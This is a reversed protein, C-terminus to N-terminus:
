ASQRTATFAIRTGDPSWVPELDKRAGSDDTINTQATGDSKVFTFTPCAMPRISTSSGPERARNCQHRRVGSGALLGAAIMRGIGRRDRHRSRERQGRRPARKHGGCQRPLTAATSDLDSSSMPGLVPVPDFPHCTCPDCTRLSSADPSGRRRGSVSAPQPSHSRSMPRFVVGVWAAGTRSGLVVPDAHLFGSNRVDLLLGLDPPASVSHSSGDDGDLAARRPSAPRARPPTRRSPWPRGWQKRRRELLPRSPVDAHHRNGALM